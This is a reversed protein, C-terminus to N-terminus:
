HCRGMSEKTKWSGLLTERCFDTRDSSTVSCKQEKLCAWGVTTKKQILIVKLTKLGRNLIKLEYEKKTEAGSNCVDMTTTSGGCMKRM